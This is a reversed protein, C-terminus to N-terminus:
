ARQKYALLAAAIQDPCSTPKKGCPVGSFRKIVEDIEMGKLLNSIGLLNGPCGGIIKVDQIQNGDVTIEFQRACVGRPEYAFTEM